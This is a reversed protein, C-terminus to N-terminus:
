HVGGKWHIVFRLMQGDAENAVIEEIVTHAIKKRLQGPCHESNWVGEFDEGMRLIKAREKASLPLIEKELGALRAKVQEVEDLKENWRRKLEGAVLRNRQGVENMM